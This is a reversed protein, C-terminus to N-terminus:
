VNCHNKKLNKNIEIKEISASVCVHYDTMHVCIYIRDGYVNKFSQTSKIKLNVFDTVLLVDSKVPVDDGV